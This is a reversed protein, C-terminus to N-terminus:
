TDAFNIKGTQKFKQNTCQKNSYDNKTQKEQTHSSLQSSLHKDKKKELM